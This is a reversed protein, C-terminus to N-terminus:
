ANFAKRKETEYFTHGEPPRDLPQCHPLAKSGANPHPPCIKVKALDGVAGGEIGKALHKNASLENGCVVVDEGRKRREIAEEKTITEGKIVAGLSGLSAAHITSKSPSAALKKKKGAKGM